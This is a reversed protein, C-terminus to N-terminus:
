RRFIACAEAYRDAVQVAFVAPDGQVLWLVENQQHEIPSSTIPKGGRGHFAEWVQAQVTFATLETAVCSARTPQIRLLTFDRLHSLEHSMVTAIARADAGRLGVNVALWRRGLSLQAEVDPEMPAWVISLQQQIALDHLPKAMPVEILLRLRDRLEPDSRAEIASPAWPTMAWRPVLGTEKLLDGVLVRTMSGVAPMGPVPEVWRQFAVRQFRQVIFPGRKLPRSTPLGYLEGADRTGFYAARIDADDLWTLRAFGDDPLPPPVARRVDLFSDHGAESLMDLANAIVAKGLDPQWQLLAAQTAQYIFGDPGVFRWSAPYGLAAPGGLRQYDRWFAVGGDDTIAFGGAQNYYWGNPFSHDEAAEARGLGLVIVLALVVLLRM